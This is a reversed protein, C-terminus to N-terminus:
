KKPLTIPPLGLCIPLSGDLVDEVARSANVRGAGSREDVRDATSSLICRMQHSTITPNAAKMLAAVGSVLPTAMSTGSKEGYGGGRLTSVIATGPAGVEGCGSDGASMTPTALNAVSVVEPYSSPYHIVCGSNGAAAVLLVGRHYAYQIAAHFLPDDAFLGLSMSIIHAGDLTAQIVGAAVVSAAGLAVGSGDDTGTSVAFGLVPYNLVCAQAAGAMGAANHTVAALIGAVHTGHEGLGSGFGIPSSGCLNSRLDPHPYIGDDLVAVKVDHSGLGHDWAAPLAVAQPAWQGYLPDDPVFAPYVWHDRYARLVEGRSEAAHIFAREEGIQVAYTAFPIESSALVPAHGSILLDSPLAEQFLVVVPVLRGGRGPQTPAAASLSAGIIISALVIASWARAPRPNM